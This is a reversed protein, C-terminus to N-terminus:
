AHSPFLPLSGTSYTESTGNRYPEDKAIPTRSSQRIMLQAPFVTSQVPGTPNAVRRLVMEAACKGIGEFDQAMSTLELDELGPQMVDDFGVMAVDEPVRLGLYKLENYVAPAWYDSLLFIATPANQSTFVKRLNERDLTRGGDLALLIYQPNPAIGADHLAKHYGTLRGSSADTMGLNTLHAIRRHGCHILHNTAIYAATINDTGVYDLDLGPVRRDIAVIPFNSSQLERILGVNASGGEHWLIAGAFNQDRAYRLAEAEKEAAKGYTDAYTDLVIPHYRSESLAANVGYFIDTFLTGGFRRGLLLAVLSTDVRSANEPRAGIRRVPPLPRHTVVYGLDFAAAQVRKKTIDSVFVGNNARENLVTSVVAQSVGARQAVDRLTVSKTVGM